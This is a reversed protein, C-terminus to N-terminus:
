SEFLLFLEMNEKNNVRIEIIKRKLISSSKDKDDEKDNYHDTIISNNKSNSDYSNIQIM